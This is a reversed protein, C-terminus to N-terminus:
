IYVSHRSGTPSRAGWVVFSDYDRSLHSPKRIRTAERLNSLLLGSYRLLLILAWAYGLISSCWDEWAALEM